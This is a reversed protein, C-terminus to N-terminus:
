TGVSIVLKSSTLEPSRVQLRYRTFNTTPSTGLVLFLCSLCLGGSDAWALASSSPAPESRSCSTISSSRWVSITASRTKERPCHGLWMGVWGRADRTRRQVDQTEEPGIWRCVVGHRKNNYPSPKSGPKITIRPPRETGLAMRHHSQKQM